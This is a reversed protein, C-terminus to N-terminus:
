TTSQCVPLQTDPDRGAPGAGSGQDVVEQADRVGVGDRVSQLHLAEQGLPPRGQGSMSM